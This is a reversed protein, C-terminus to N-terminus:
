WLEEDGEQKKLERLVDADFYQILDKAVEIAEDQAEKPDEDPTTMALQAALNMNMGSILSVNPRECLPLLKNYVSGGKIDCLIVTHEPAAADIRAAVQEAIMEPTIYTDLGFAEAGCDDGAVLKVASLLGEAFHGHSALIVKM